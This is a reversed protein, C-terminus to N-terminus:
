VLVAVFSNFTSAAIALDAGRVWECCLVAHSVATVESSTAVVHASRATAIDHHGELSCSAPTCVVLHEFGVIRRLRRSVACCACVVVVLGM